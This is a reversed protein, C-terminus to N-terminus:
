SACLELPFRFTTGKNQQSEVTIHSNHLELIRKSIALGLGTGEISDSRSKSVRYFREFIHPIDEEPIGPGNDKVTMFMQQDKTDLILEVEGGDPTYKIANEILNELVREILAIDASVFGAIKPIQADLKLGKDKAKLQFKQTIDNVLESMSFPEFHLQSSQNDLMALEFLESILKGLRKSHKFATEIYQAREEESLLDAKLTLTELYGQLSALPTRLDHSVNAVLERRSADNHQLQKVQTSIRESMEFFTRGLQTIEDPSQRNFEDPLQISKEFSSRKFRDMIKALLNIRRTIFHFGLLGGAFTIVLAGILAALTFKSIYSTQLMELVSDYAEGGLVVYLYGALGDETRIPSASFVKQRNEGRPDDGLIPLDKGDVFAQVPAIDIFESKVHGPPASFALIKGQADTLYVEIAPNVLMLGMFVKNWDPKNVQNEKFLTTEKVLNSALDKHLKQSLEQLFVPGAYGVVIAVVLGLTLFLALLALSLKGYLTKFM